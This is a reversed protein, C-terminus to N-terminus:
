GDRERRWPCTKRLEFMMAVFTAAWVSLAIWFTGWPLAHLFPLNLAKALRWTAASYMGLPFVAAWASPDYRLPFRRVFHRWVALALLMPIWWTAVAWCSITFGKLFPLLSWLLPAEPASEILRAGALTSIAMAGMDVFTPPTLEAPSLPLLLYRYFLLSAILGYLIVGGLWMSLSVFNMELRYPQPLDRAVLTTLEAISQTAVVAILWVGSIAESLPPKDRKVILFAFVAYVLGIWLVIGALLFVSAIQIAHDFLLFQTGVICSAAVTTFYGFAIRHDSMDHLMSRPYRLARFGTVVALAAGAALNLLFLATALVSLRFNWAVISIVGTAMVLAFLSPTQRKMKLGFSPAQGGIEPMFM